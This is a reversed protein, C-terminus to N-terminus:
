DVDVPKYIDILDLIAGSMISAIGGDGQSEVLDLSKRNYSYFRFEDGDHDVSFEEVGDVVVVYSQNFRSGVDFNVRISLNKILSNARARGEYSAMDLREFFEDKNIVKERQLDTMLTNKESKLIDLQDELKGIIAVLTGPLKTGFSLVQSSLESLKESVESIKANVVNLESKLKGQADQVLSLSDVKALIEIFVKESRELRVQKNECTGKAAGYCRLYKGGKPKKGKNVLHMSQGCIACKAVGQWVNFEKTQRTSKYINREDRALQAAYFVSESIVVPFFDLIPEGSPLRIGDILNTPQYEGLLARNSLIKSTSSSGWKGSKNRTASGFVPINEKNLIKAIAKQGYGAPALYFIKEITEVREAIAKYVGNDYEIWYPCAAGLPKKYERADAQKKKWAKSVRMGKISSESHARSMHVISIILDLENYDQTYLKGDASTYIQIGKNLLDLFRPLADKVKERSLRDLSEIILFSGSPITGDNVYSLFRALQGTDDLHKATYASRGSDLFQYDKTSVLELGEVECYRIAAEQQRRFSDGKAQEPSSFRVYSYAKPRQDNM